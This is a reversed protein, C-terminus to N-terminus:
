RFIPSKRVTVCKRSEPDGAIKIKRDDDVLNNSEEIMAILKIVGMVNDIVMVDGNREEM